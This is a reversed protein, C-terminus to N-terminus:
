PRMDSADLRKDYQTFLEAFSMKFTKRGFISNSMEQLNDVNSVIQM